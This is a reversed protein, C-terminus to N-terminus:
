AISLTSLVRAISPHRTVSPGSVPADGRASVGAVVLVNGEAREVLVAFWGIRGFGQGTTFVLGDRVDSGDNRGAVPAHDRGIIELERSTVRARVADEVQAFAAADWVQVIIAGGPPGSLALYQGPMVFARGVLGAAAPDIRLAIPALGNQTAQERTIVIPETM